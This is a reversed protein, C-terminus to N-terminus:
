QSPNVFGLLKALADREEGELGMFAQRVIAAKTQPCNRKIHGQQGCQFCRGEQKAKDLEMPKGAGGFVMGSTDKRDVPMAVAPKTMTTSTAQGGCNWWRKKGEQRRKWMDDISIIVNKYDDYKEIRDTRSGYIQDIIKQNVNMEILRIVYPDDKKYGTDHLLIEFENFFEEATKTEQRLHELREQANQVRGKDLFAANLADKFDKWSVDWTENTDNFHDDSYNQVWGKVKTGQM